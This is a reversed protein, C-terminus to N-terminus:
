HHVGATSFPWIRCNLYSHVFSYWSFFLSFLTIRFLISSSSRCYTFYVSGTDCVFKIHYFRSFAIRPLLNAAKFISKSM